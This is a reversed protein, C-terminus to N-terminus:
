AANRMLVRDVEAIIDVLLAPAEVRDVRALITKMFEIDAPTDVTLRIDPRRIDLPALPTVTRFAFLYRKIFLTVHERDQPNTTLDAV